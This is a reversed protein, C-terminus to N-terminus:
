GNSHQFICAKGHVAKGTVAATISNGDKKIYPSQLFEPAFWNGACAGGKNGNWRANFVRTPDIHYWRHDDGALEQLSVDESLDQLPTAGGYFQESQM